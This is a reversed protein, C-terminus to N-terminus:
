RKPLRSMLLIRIRNQGNKLCSFTHVCEPSMRSSLYGTSVESYLLPQRTSLLLDLCSLFLFFFCFLRQKEHLRANGAFLFFVNVVLSTSLPPTCCFTNYYYHHHCLFILVIIIFSFFLHSLFRSKNKM